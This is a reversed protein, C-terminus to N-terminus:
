SAFPPLHSGNVGIMEEMDRVVQNVESCKM